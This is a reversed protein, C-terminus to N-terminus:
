GKNKKSRNAMYKKALLAGAGIAAGGVGGMKLLSAKRENDVVHRFVPDVARVGRFVRTIMNHPVADYMKKSINPTSLYAGAGVGAGASTGIKAVNKATNKAFSKLNGETVICCQIESIINM